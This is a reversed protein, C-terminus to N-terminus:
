ELNVRPKWQEGQFILLAHLIRHYHQNKPTTEWTQIFPVYNKSRTLSTTLPFTILTFVRARVLPCFIKWRLYNGLMIKKNREFEGWNIILLRVNFKIRSWLWGIRFFILTNTFVSNSHNVSCAFYRGLEKAIKRHTFFFRLSAEFSPNLPDRGSQLSFKKKISIQWLM